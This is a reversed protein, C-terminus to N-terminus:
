VGAGGWGGWEGLSHSRSKPVGRQALKGPKSKYVGIKDVEIKKSWQITERVRLPVQTDRVGAARNFPAPIPDSGKWTPRHPSPPM